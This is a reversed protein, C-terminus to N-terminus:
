FSHTVSASLYDRDSDTNDEYDGPYATYNLKMTTGSNTFSSGLTIKAEGETWGGISTPANGLFDFDVGISPSFTWPSNAFNFYSLSGRIRSTMALDDPGANDECYNNGFLANKQQSLLAMGASDSCQNQYVDFGHSDHNTQVLGQNHNYDPIMVAGIEVLLSGSDAGTGSIMPDSSTFSRYANM